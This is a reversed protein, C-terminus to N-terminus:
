QIKLEPENKKAKQAQVFEKHLNNTYRYVFYLFVLAVIFNNTLFNYTGHIAIPVILALFIKSNNKEFYHLGLYYGMIIGCMAHMPIAAIARVFAVIYPNIGLLGSEFYVYTYNEYTAFGLSIIAGYVIADMKENFHIQKRVFLYFVLFKLPEETFGSLYTLDNSNSLIFIKNLFAAPFILLAGLIFIFIINGTPEPFKDSKIIYMLIILSPMFTMLLLGM